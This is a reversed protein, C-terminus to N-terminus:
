LKKVVGRCDQTAKKRDDKNRQKYLALYKQFYDLCYGVRYMRKTMTMKCKSIMKRILQIGEPKSLAFATSPSFLTNDCLIFDASSSDM